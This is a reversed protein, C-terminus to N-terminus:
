LEDVVREASLGVWKRRNVVPEVCFSCRFPCGYSTIYQLTRNGYETKTLCKEVDIIEYPTTPFNNIDEISFEKNMVIQGNNKYALGPMKALDDQNNDRLNKVLDYFKREGQGIVVMDINPDKITSETMISPHWGGWIIPLKSYREKMLSAVKIGETIQNGTMASIGLCMADNCEKLTEEIHNKYLSDSIVKVEFRDKILLSSVHLLALPAVKIERDFSSPNGQFLVVKNKL